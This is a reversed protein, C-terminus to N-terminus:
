SLAEPLFDDERGGIERFKMAKCNKFIKKEIQQNM